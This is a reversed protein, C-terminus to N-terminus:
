LAGQANERIAFRPKIFLPPKVAMGYVKQGIGWDKSQDSLSLDFNWLMNSLILRMEHYALNKGVCNRPGFSFPQFVDRRDKAFPGKDQNEALWREPLFEDAKYWNASSNYAAWHSVGVVTGEPVYDDIVMRGGAPVGRTQSNPVPPYMRLGEELCAFLYPLHTLSDMHIEDLSSFATRVEDVLRQYKDPNRLLHWTLGSLLTATTESGAIMLTMGMAHNEETSLTGNEKGQNRLIYKWFDPRQTERALRKDVQAKSYSIHLKLPEFTSAPLIHKLLWGLLPFFRTFVALRSHIPIMKNIAHVWPTWEGQALMGMPEGFSLDAVIDFTTFNYWRLIDIEGGDKMAAIHRVKAVLDRVYGAIISQQERLAKDSMAHALLRRARAHDADNMLILSHRGGLSPVEIRIDKPM